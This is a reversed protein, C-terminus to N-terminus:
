RGCKRALADRRVEERSVEAAERSEAVKPSAARAKHRETLGMQRLCKKLMRGSFLGSSLDVARQMFVESIETPEAAYCLIAQFQRDDKNWINLGGSGRM